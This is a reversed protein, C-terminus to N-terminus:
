DMREKELNLFAESNYYERDENSLTDKSMLHAGDLNQHDEIQHEIEDEEFSIFENLVEM